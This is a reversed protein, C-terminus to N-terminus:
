SRSVAATPFCNVSVAAATRRLHFCGNLRFHLFKENKQMWTSLLLTHHFQTGTSPLVVETADTLAAAQRM